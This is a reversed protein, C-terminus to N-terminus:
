APPPRTFLELRATIGQGKVEYPIAVIAVTFLVPLPQAAVTPANPHASMCLLCSAGAHNTLSRDSHVHVAELGAFVLVLLLCTAAIWRQLPERHHKVISM